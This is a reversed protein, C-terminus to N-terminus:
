VLVRSFRHTSLFIGAGMLIFDGGGGWFFGLLGGGEFRPIKISM